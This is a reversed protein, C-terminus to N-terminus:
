LLILAPFLLMMETMEKKNLAVETELIEDEIM